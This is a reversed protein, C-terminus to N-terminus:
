TCNLADVFLIQEVVLETQANAVSPVRAILGHSLSDIYETALQRLRAFDYAQNTERPDALRAESLGQEINPNPCVRQGGGEGDIGIERVIGVRLWGAHGRVQNCVAHPCDQDDVVARRVQM